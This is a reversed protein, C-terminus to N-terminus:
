LALRGAVMGPADVSEERGRGLLRAPGVNPLGEVNREDPASDGYHLIALGDDVVLLDGADRAACQVAVLCQRLWDIQLTAFLAM